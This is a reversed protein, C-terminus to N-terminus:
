VIRRVLETVMAVGAPSTVAAEDWSDAPDLDLVSLRLSFLLIPPLLGAVADDATM